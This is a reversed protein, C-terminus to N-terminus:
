ARSPACSRSWPACWCGNAMRQASGELSLSVYIIPIAIDPNAEKPVAQWAALGALLLSVLLLLTTRSRNLAAEILTRM